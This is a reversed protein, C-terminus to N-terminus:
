SCFSDISIMYHSGFNLYSIVINIVMSLTSVATLSGIVILLIKNIKKRDLKAIFYNTIFSLGGGGIFTLLFFFGAVGITIDGKILAECLSAAGSFVVQFGCTASVVMPEIELYVMIFIITTTNGLAFVGGNFGGWFSGLCILAFFKLNDLPYDYKYKIKKFYEMEKQTYCYIAM